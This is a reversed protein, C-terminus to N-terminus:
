GLCFKFFNFYYYQIIKIIGSVYQHGAVLSSHSESEEDRPDSKAELNIDNRDFIENISEDNEYSNESSHALAELVKRFSNIDEPEDYLNGQRNSPYIIDQLDSIDAKNRKLQYGDILYTNTDLIKYAEIKIVVFLIIISVLFHRM